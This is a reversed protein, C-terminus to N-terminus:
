AEVMQAPKRANKAALEMTGCTRVAPEAGSLTAAMAGNKLNSTAGSSLTVVASTVANTNPMPMATVRASLSLPTTSWPRSMMSSTSPLIM